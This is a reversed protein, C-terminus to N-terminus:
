LPGKCESPVPQEPPFVAHPPEDAAGELRIREKFNFYIYAIATNGDRGYQADLHEIVVSATVTKGAGPIGHCFLTEKPTKIWNDFEVTSLIWESTGPQRRRICDTHKTGFNLDTLWKIIKEKEEDEHSRNVKELTVKQSLNIQVNLGNLFLNFSSIQGQLQRQIDQAPASDWKLRKWVRRTRNKAGLGVNEIEQYQDLLYQLEHLTNGCGQSIENLRQKQREDLEDTPDLDDIEQLVSSLQKVDESLSRFEGPANIFRRRLKKALEITALFDGVSYGFSM